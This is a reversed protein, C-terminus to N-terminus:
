AAEATGHVPVGDAIERGPNVICTEGETLGSLVEIFDDTELGTQIYKKEAKGDSNVTFVYTEGTSEQRVAEYAVQLADSKEELVIQVDAEYGTKIRADPDTISIKVPVKADQDASTLSKEATLGIESVVGAYTGDIGKVTVAAKQGARVNVSDLQGVDLAVLYEATGDVLIEDGTEPYQGAKADLRTVVGSINARLACEDIKDKLYEIDAKYLAIMSKQNSIKESTVSGALSAANQAGTLNIQASKVASECDAVAKEAATTDAGTLIKVDDLANQASKVASECDAVAKEASGTETDSGLTANALATEAAQVASECDTVAKQAAEEQMDATIKAGALANQATNFAYSSQSLALSATSYQQLYTAPDSDYLAKADNLAALAADYSQDATDAALEAQKILNRNLRQVDALNTVAADYNANADDLAAQAQATLNEQLQRLSELRRVADDYNATAADLALQADSLRTLNLAGVRELNAAAADCDSQAQRLAVAAQEAATDASVKDLRSGAGSLYKLTAEADSLSIRQKELQSEYDAADLKVLVDGKQVTQGESVLVETVKVAPSLTTRSSSRTEVDGTITVNKEMPAKSVTVVTVEAPRASQYKLYLAGGASLAAVLLAAALLKGKKSQFLTRKWKSM